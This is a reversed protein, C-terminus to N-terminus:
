GVRRPPNENTVLKLRITEERQEAVTKLISRLASLTHGSRGLFSGVDDPHVTIECVFQGPGTEETRLGACEPKGLLHAMVYHLFERYAESHDM